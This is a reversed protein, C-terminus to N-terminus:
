QAGVINSNNQARSICCLILYILYRVSNWKLLSPLYCVFWFILLFFIWHDYSTHANCPILLHHLFLTQPPWLFCKLQPRFFLFFENMNLTPQTLRSISAFPATSALTKAHQFCFPLWQPRLVLCLHFPLATPSPNVSNPPPWTPPQYYATEIPCVWTINGFAAVLIYVPHHLLWSSPWDTCLWMHSPPLARTVPKYCFILNGKLSLVSVFKASSWPGRWVVALACPCCYTLHFLERTLLCPCLLLHSRCLCLFLM